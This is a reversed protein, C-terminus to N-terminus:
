DIDAHSFERQDHHPLKGASLAWDATEIETSCRTDKRRPQRHALDHISDGEGLHGLIMKLESFEDFLGSGMLRLAHIAVESTFGWISGTLWEYGEYAPQRKPLPSRPHLYFPVDLEQLTAWFDRYQQLDYVVTGPESQTTLTSAQERWHLQRVGQRKLEIEAL